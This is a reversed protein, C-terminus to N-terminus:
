LLTNVDLILAPAGDSLITAGSFLAEAGRVADLPKVVIEQQGLLRDVVVGARRDAREVIVVQGAPGDGGIGAPAEGAEGSAESRGGSAESATRSAVRPLHVLDRLHVLPLVDERLLMVERGRLTQARAAALEVTEQVHTMPLAYVEGGVQALVAGVIALTVPLRLEVTTGQGEVSRIQVAGGLMRVKAIVADVGVGRGSLGTVREATSFGPRAILRMLEDDTLSARGADVLGQAQAKALVRARDIGRGDDEVRVLVASRDRAASLVLRGVPPKGAATRAAAPELGHDVANRLLHVLADAIEELLSRDLEIEKGEVIFEVDKGAAKAADRVTRPFRDFVQWVPVLRSALIEDHLADVLRATSAVADTLDPAEAAAALRVLRDRAIVLEGVLNLLTDLRRTDVRVSRSAPVASAAGPAPAGAPAAPAVDVLVREVFGAKALDAAIEEPGLAVVLKLSFERDFQEAQLAEPPPWVATVEGLARARQLVLFARVGKLPTGAELTVRVTRGAAAADGASPGGGAVAGGAPPTDRADRADVGATSATAERVRALLAAPAVAPRGAVADAVTQELGDAADFLVGIVREVPLRGGRVADLLTELEHALAAVATFGMTAAMGKMSHVARFLPAVPGVDSPARELALLAENVAVLHERSETLFLETYKAADM